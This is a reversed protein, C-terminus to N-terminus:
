IYRGTSLSIEPELAYLVEPIEQHTRVMSHTHFSNFLVSNRCVTLIVIITIFGPWTVCTQTGANCAYAKDLKANQVLM